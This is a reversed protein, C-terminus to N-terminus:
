RLTREIWAAARRSPIKLGQSKKRRTERSRTELRLSCSLRGMM